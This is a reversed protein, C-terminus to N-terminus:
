AAHEACAVADTGYPCSLLGPIRRSRPMCNPDYTSEPTPANYLMPPVVEVDEPSSITVDEPSTITVQPVYVRDYYERAKAFPTPTPTPTPSAPPLTPLPLSASNSFFVNARCRRGQPDCHIDTISGMDPLTVAPFTSDDIQAVLYSGKENWETFPNRLWFSPCASNPALANANNEVMTPRQM